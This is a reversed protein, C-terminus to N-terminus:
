LNKVWFIVCIVRTSIKSGKSVEFALGEITQVERLMGVKWLHNLESFEIAKQFVFSWFGEVTRGFALMTLSMVARISVETRNVKRKATFSVMVLFLTQKAKQSYDKM